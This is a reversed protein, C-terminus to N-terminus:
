YCAQYMTAVMKFIAIRNKAVPTEINLLASVHGQESRKVSLDSDLQAQYLGGPSGM